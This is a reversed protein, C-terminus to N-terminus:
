VIHICLKGETNNSPCITQSVLNKILHDIDKRLLPEGGTIRVKTIGLNVLLRVFRVIEEYSLM